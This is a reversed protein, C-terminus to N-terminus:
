HAHTQAEFSTLGSPPDGAVTPDELPLYRELWQLIPCATDLAPQVTRLFNPESFVYRYHIHALQKLQLVRLPPILIPRRYILYNYRMDLLRSRAYRRVVTPVLAIEDMREIAGEPVVGGDMLRRFDAEWERFVGAERRVAILGSSFYARVRTGLETDVFPVESLPRDHFVRQWYADIPDIPGRSNMRASAAPRLAIDTEPPLDLDTPEAIVVTDSDLFVLTPEDLIREAYACVFVKNLTGIESFDTNLVEPIHVVGLEHLAALTREGADRGRRPQFAYIPADRYAGGFQRISRCLLITQAELKGREVCALFALHRSV